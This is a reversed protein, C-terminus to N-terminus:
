MECHSRLSPPLNLVVHTGGIQTVKRKTELDHNFLNQSIGKNITPMTFMRLGAFHDM